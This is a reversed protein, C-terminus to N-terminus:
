NRPRLIPQQVVEGKIEGWCIQTVDESWGDAADDRFHDLCRDAAKEAAEQTEHTDFGCDPCYTFFRNYM